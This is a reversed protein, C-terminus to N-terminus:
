ATTARSEASKAAIDCCNGPDRGIEGFQVAQQGVPATRLWRMRLRVRATGGSTGGAAAYAGGGAGIGTGRRRRAAEAM